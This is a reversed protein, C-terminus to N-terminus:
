RITTDAAVRSTQFPGFRVREVGGRLLRACARGSRIPTYLPDTKPGKWAELPVASVVIRYLTGRETCLDTGSRGFRDRHCRTAHKLRPAVHVM